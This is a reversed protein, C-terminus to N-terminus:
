LIVELRDFLSRKVEDTGQDWRLMGFQQGEASLGHRAEIGIKEGGDPGVSRTFLKKADLAGNQNREVEGEIFGLEFGESPLDAFPLLFELFELGGELSV